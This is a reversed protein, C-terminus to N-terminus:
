KTYRACPSSRWYLKDLKEAVYVGYSHAECIIARADERGWRGIITKAAHSLESASTSVEPLQKRRTM